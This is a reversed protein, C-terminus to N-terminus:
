APDTGDPASALDAPPAASRQQMPKAPVGAVLVGAGVDRTVVSGAGTRAGEGIRVPAVLMTDSGIFANKGVHTEHKTRGDYNCTITGAGINVDAGITADGIYGFHHMLTGPGLRSRKVEAYNGLEVGRGISAGPRLHSFPGITVDEEVLAEEVMSAVIRCNDGIRSSRIITNPGVECAEGIVTEGQLHTNPQIVSDRGIRVNEDIFASRPDILTVGEDMLRRRVRERAVAEAAALEARTNVGRVEDEDASLTTIGEGEEAAMRVLETLYYEGTVVSPGIQGLHPWLWDARFCYAGANIERVRRLDPTADKEEVVARVSGTVDRQLRGIGTPDTVTAALLTLAAGSLEHVRRLEALTEPRILPLDGNLVMVQETRAENAAARVADATGLADAQFAVTVEGLEALMSRAMASAAGLVVIRRQVGAAEVADLVRCLLPRGAVPHMVKPLRSRM